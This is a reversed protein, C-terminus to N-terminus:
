PQTEKELLDLTIDLRDPEGAIVDIYKTPWSRTEIMKAGCTILSAWPQLITLAKREEAM